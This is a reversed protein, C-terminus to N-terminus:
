ICGYLVARAESRSLAATSFEATATNNRYREDITLCRSGCLREPRM